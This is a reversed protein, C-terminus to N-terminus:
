ELIEVGISGRFEVAWCETGGDLISSTYCERSLKTSNRSLLENLLMMIRKRRSAKFDFSGIADADGGGQDKAM